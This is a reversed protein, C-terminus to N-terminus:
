FCKCIEGSRRAFLTPVPVMDMWTQGESSQPPISNQFDAEYQDFELPPQVNQVVQLFHGRASGTIPDLEAAVHEPLQSIAWRALRSYSRTHSFPIGEGVPVALPLTPDALISLPDGGFLDLLDEDASVLAEQLTQVRAPDLSSAYARPPLSRPPGGDDGVTGAASTSAIISASTIPSRM